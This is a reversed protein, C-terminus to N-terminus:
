MGAPLSPSAGRIPKAAYPACLPDGVVVDKWGLMPSAMGYSDALDFGATYRDFLVNTHCLAFTFPESVYGKVGTAGQAVLDAVLSQGGAAGGPAPSFTRGSTSVFTELIAGRKFRLRHYAAPDFRDDNSGWSAYGMLPAGGADAFAPSRDYITRAGKARLEADTRALIAEMAGYGGGKPKLPQSDLLFPGAEGRAGAARSVLALADRVTYGTLRSVLYFGFKRHSFRENRGFYPSVRRGIEGEDLKAGLPSFARGTLALFADVSYGGEAIRLPVGKTTVIYDVPNPNARLNAAVRAAIGARYEAGSVEDGTAARVTVVNGAPVGRARAYARGIRLSDPSSGNVVVLVRRGPSAETPPALALSPLALM